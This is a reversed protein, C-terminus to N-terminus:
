ATWFPPCAWDDNEAVNPADLAHPFQTSPLVDGRIRDRRLLTLELLSPFVIGDIEAVPLYNNPHVHCIVFRDTLRKMFESWRALGSVCFMDELNHLEIAIIRFRDLDEDRMALITEFEAGEIDMQLLLDGKPPAYKALWDQMSVVQGATEAGVFLKDFTLMPHETTLGDVSADAMFVPIGRDAIDTDFTMTVDVGPSFGAVIGDLDNPLLYGGDNAAGVRILPIGTQFPQFMTFVPRVKDAGVLTQGRLRRYQSHGRPELRRRLQNKLRKVLSM